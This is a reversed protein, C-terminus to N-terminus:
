FKSLPCTQPKKKSGLIAIRDSVAPQSHRSVIRHWLLAITDRPLTRRAGVELTRSQAATAHARTGTSAAPSCSSAFGCGRSAYTVSTQGWLRVKSLGRVTKSSGSRGAVDFQRPPSGPALRVTIQLQAPLMQLRDLAHSIRKASRAPSWGRTRPQRQPGPAISAGSRSAAACPQEPQTSAELREPATRLPTNRTLAPAVTIRHLLHTSVRM